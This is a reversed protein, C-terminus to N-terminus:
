KDSWVVGFRDLALEIFRKCLDEFSIGQAKASDPLLSTPTMGPISNTELIVPNGDKNIIFDSRSVGSCQLAKHAQIAYEQAKIYSEESIRAPIIHHLESPEYKVQSDYFEAGTNIEIVPLAVPEENGLVPVTIEIGEIAEEVLVDSNNVRAKKIAPLIDEKKTVRSVGFSSGNTAPKVFIPYTFRKDIDDVIDSTIDGYPLAIGKPTPIGVSEYLLKSIHKDSSLSSSMVGSFTYPIKLVELMGQICGDEGGKGHMAIFAMDYSKQTLVHVSEPSTIDIFDVSKFGKSKLAKFCANGSSLSIEREDSWGGTLLAVRAKYINLVSM